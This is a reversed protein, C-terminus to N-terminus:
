EGENVNSLNPTYIDKSKLIQNDMLNHRALVKEVASNFISDFNENDIMRSLKPAHDLTPLRSRKM